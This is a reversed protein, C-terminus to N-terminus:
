NIELGYNFANQFEEWWFPLQHQERGSERQSNQIEFILKYIIRLLHIQHFFQSQLSHSLVVHIQFLFVFHM